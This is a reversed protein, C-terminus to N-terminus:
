CLSEKEVKTIIIKIYSFDVFTAELKWSNLNKQFAEEIAICTDFPQNNM